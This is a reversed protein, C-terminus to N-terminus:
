LVCCHSCMLATSCVPAVCRKFFSGFKDADTFCAWGAVNERFKENVMLLISLM